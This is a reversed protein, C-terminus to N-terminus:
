SLMGVCAAAVSDDSSQAAYHGAPGRRCLKYRPGVESAELFEKSWRYYMGETIREWRRQFVTKESRECILVGHCPGFGRYSEPHRARDAFQLSFQQCDHSLPLLLGESIVDIRRLLQLAVSAASLM